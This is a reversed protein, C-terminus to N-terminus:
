LQAEVHVRTGKGPQSDIIANGGIQDAREQIGRLGLGSQISQASPDFGVGDDFIDLSITHELQLLQVEVKNALAHKVVNNLVEQSIWYFTEEINKPLDITGEVIFETALGSREEVSELRMKLAAEIGEDELVTPRLEYILLRMEQFAQQATHKLEAIHETATQLEGAVLLRSAAEAYLTQSYLAQTVSDHLDRALRNREKLVALEEAQATYVQLKEHAVQLEVLLRQSENRATEARDSFILLGSIILNSLIYNIIFGIGAAFGHGYLILGTMILTIAIVWRIGIKEPLVFIAQMIIAVFLVAFYDAYPPILMLYSVVIMQVGLYIHTWRHSQRSLLPEIVFLVVFITLPITVPTQFPKGQFGSQSRVITSFTILYATLYTIIIRIRNGKEKM